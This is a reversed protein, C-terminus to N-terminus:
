ESPQWVPGHYRRINRELLREGHIRMLAAVRDGAFRGLSKGPQLETKVVTGQRGPAPNM